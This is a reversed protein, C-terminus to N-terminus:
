VSSENSIGSVWKRMPLIDKRLQQQLNNQGDKGRKKKPNILIGEATTTIELSHILRYDNILSDPIMIAYPNGIKVLKTEM